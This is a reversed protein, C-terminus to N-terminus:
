NGTNIGGTKLAYAKIVITQKVAVGGLFQRDIEKKNYVIQYYTANPYEDVVKYLAKKIRRDSFLNSNIGQITTYKVANPDYPIGNISDIVTILGLYQYYSLTIESKGLYQLDSATLRLETRQPAFTTKQSVETVSGCGYLMVAFLFLFAIKKNIINM